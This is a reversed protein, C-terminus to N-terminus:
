PTAENQGITVARITVNCEGNAALSGNHYLSIETAGVGHDNGTSRSAESMSLSNDVGFFAFTTECIEPGQILRLRDLMHLM